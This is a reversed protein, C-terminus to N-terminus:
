KAIRCNELVKAGGSGGISVMTLVNTFTDGSYVNGNGGGSSSIGNTCSTFTCNSVNSSGVQTFIICTSNGAPTQSLLFAIHNINIDSLPTTNQAWIGFGFGKITGNKITIPHTNPVGAGPAGGWPGIGVGLSFGGSGVLTHGRFDITVPGNIDPPITIGALTADVTPITYILDTLLVWVGPSPVVFPVAPIALAPAPPAAFSNGLALFSALLFTSSRM